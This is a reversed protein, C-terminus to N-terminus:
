LNPNWLKGSEWEWGLQRLKFAFAPYKVLFRSWSMGWETHHKRCKAVVNWPEDPGGSGRTKIHSPDVMLRSGCVICPMAKILELLAKDSKRIKKSFM